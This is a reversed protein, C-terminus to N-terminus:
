QKKSRGSTDEPSARAPSSRGPLAPEFVAASWMATRSMARSLRGARARGPGWAPRAQQGPSVRCPRRMSKSAGAPLSADPEAEAEGHALVHPDRDRDDWLLCPLRGGFGVALVPLTGVQGLEGAQEVQRAPGLAGPDDHPPLVGM